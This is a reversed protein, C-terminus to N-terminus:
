WRSRVWHIAGSVGADVARLTRAPGGFWLTVVVALVAIPIFLLATDRDNGSARM